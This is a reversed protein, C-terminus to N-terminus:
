RIRMAQGFQWASYSTGSAISAAPGRSSFHARQPWLKWAPNGPVAGAAAGGGAV